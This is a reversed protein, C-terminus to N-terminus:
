HEAYPHRFIINAEHEPGTSLMHVPAGVLAELRELYERAAGPLKDASTIGRTDGSWGPVAEYVPQVRQWDEAGLPFTEVGEYATCILVEDLGDLVDLKTVCLGTIGNVRVMRRLAVADIWGCRRPRGTTAGFEVGREAIRQGIQDHLETPFPGSGVRTTYAKTIGLVYDIDVPGVGAGTM